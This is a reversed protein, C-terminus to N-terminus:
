FLHEWDSYPNDSKLFSFNPCVKLTIKHFILAFEFILDFNFLLIESLQLFFARRLRNKKSFCFM